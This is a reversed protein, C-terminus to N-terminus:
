GDRAYDYLARVKRGVAAGRGGTAAAPTEVAAAAAAAPAAAMVASTSLAASGGTTGSRESIGGGRGMPMMGGMVNVGGIPRKAGGAPAGGGGGAAGGAVGGYPPSSAVGGYPPTSDAVPARAAVSAMAAATMPAGRGMGGGGGAGSAGIAAATGAVPVAQPPLAELFNSPASGIRGRLEGQWWGSEDKQLVVIMDGAKFSLENADQADYDYLARCMDRMVVGGGGGGGGGGPTSTPPSPAAAAAAAPAHAAGPRASVPPPGGLSGAAGGAPMAMMGGGGGGASMANRPMVGNAPAAAGAGAPMAGGDFPEYVARPRATIGTRNADCFAHVQQQPVVLAIKELAATAAHARTYIRSQQVCLYMAHVYM